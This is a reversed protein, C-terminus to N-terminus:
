AAEKSSAPVAFLSSLHAQQRARFLAMAEPACDPRVIPSTWGAPWGMLWEVFYPNLRKTQSPQPSGPSDPLCDQGAATPQALPSFESHAIFAPLSPGAPRNFHEMTKVGGQESRFDRAAPTPWQHVASQNLTLHGAKASGSQECDQATPTPWNSADRNLNAGQTSKADVGPRRGDHANPTPWQAAMSPLMLDGKSGRQNPGGKSGDSAKPTMWLSAAERINQGREGNSYSATNCDPTPWGGPSASGGQAGMVPVWTPRQFLSGNRMGGVTPWNEWSEPPRANSYAVMKLAWTRFAAELPSPPMTPPAPKTWLPLQPVLSAQSTRWFSSGRVAITQSTSFTSSFVPDSATLAPAVARSPSTKVPSDLLSAMWWDAFADQQCNPSIALGSLRQLWHDKKWARLWSASPSLKGSLTCSREAESAWSSLDPTFEKMSCASAAAFASRISPPAIWVIGGVADDHSRAENAVGSRWRAVFWM